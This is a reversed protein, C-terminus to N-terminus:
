VIWWRTPVAARKGARITRSAGFTTLDGIM